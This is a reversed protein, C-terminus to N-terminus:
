PHSSFSSSAAEILDVKPHGGGGAGQDVDRILEEARCAGHVLVVAIGSLVGMVVSMDAQTVLLVVTLISLVTVVVSEDVEFGYILFTPGDHLFFLFLWAFMM